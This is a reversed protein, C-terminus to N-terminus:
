EGSMEPRSAAAAAVARSEWGEGEEGGGQTRQIVSSRNDTRYVSRRDPLWRSCLVCHFYNQRRAGVSRGVKSCLSCSAWSNSPTASRVAGTVAPNVM